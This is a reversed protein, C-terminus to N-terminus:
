RAAEIEREHSLNVRLSEGLAVEHDDPSGAVQRVEAPVDGQRPEGAHRSAVFAVDMERWSARGRRDVAGLLLLICFDRERRSDTRLRKTGNSEPGGGSAAARRRSPVSTTATVSQVSM